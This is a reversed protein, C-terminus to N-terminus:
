FKYKESIEVKGQINSASFWFSSGEKMEKIPITFEFPYNEDIRSEINGKEDEYFLTVSSFDSDDEQLYFYARRDYEGLDIIMARTNGFDFEYLSNKASPGRSLIKQQFAVKPSLGEVKIAAIGNGPVEVEYSFAGTISTKGDGWNEINGISGTTWEPNVMVTSKVPDKSQNTFALYIGSENYGAIYNLQPHSVTLLKKPMWLQIGEDEYFKGLQSGYFKNQLYAYGEIYESPFNIKGESRVFADTILYDLLMSAMPLIHNYHLSNISLAKHERLPYDAKEYATTRATNIHYGPFNQYRGIIASKAVEKLFIDNTYYGLRLMWPAYNAMFIARHGQSTGSSEPTLGIESLRWAEVKEEPFYMQEHGKSKLYWYLPAKGDKNVLINTDPISPSMWTFMTYRRAGDQAAKLYKKNLTIEYLETLEVWKPTFANWFFLGPADTDKFDTQKTEVRIQLYENAGSIALDLFKKDKTAKYIHMANVWSNGDEVVDLNRIRSRGFEKKALEVFFNNSPGLINYLSTLESVPAIPGAMSRSPHQIKQEPDLSFLFKERSLMYELTPYARQEFMVSDDMVIALDLPNLSSVNKVAGPVDTSYAFGKLSDVFWAYDSLSYDVMNEFTQNLSISENKRYDKFGFDNRAINEFAEHIEGPEIVLFSKFQFSDGVKMQSGEGGPVPAFLQPQAKGEENRVMVGFRSNTPLPLPDFPFEESAAMVGLSHTGDHVLATPIPCRFALTMVPSEPFRKEQWILPQWIEKVHSLMFEPAGTYGVSFFGDKKPTIRFKISPHRGELDSVEASFNFFEHDDFIMQITGEKMELSAANIPFVTGANFPNSSRKAAEGELITDDFGDGISSDSRKVKGLDASKGEYATWTIINYPVGEIGAPRMAMDPNEESYIISFSPQFQYPIEDRLIIIQNNEFYVKNDRGSTCSLISIIIFAISVKSISNM